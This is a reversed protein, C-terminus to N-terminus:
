GLEDFNNEFSIIQSLLSMLYQFAGPEVLHIIMTAPCMSLRPWGSLPCAWLSPVGVFLLRLSM